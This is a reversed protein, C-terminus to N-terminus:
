KAKRSLRAKLRRWGYWVLDWVRLPFLVWEIRRMRPEVFHAHYERLANAVMQGMQANQLQIRKELHAGRIVTKSPKM